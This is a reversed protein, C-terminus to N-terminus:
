DHDWRDGEDDAKRRGGAAKARTSASREGTTVVPQPCGHPQGGAFAADLGPGAPYQTSPPSNDITQEGKGGLREKAKDALNRAQEGISSGNEEVKDKVADATDSVKNKLDEMGM